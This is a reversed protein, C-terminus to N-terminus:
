RLEIPGLPPEAVAVVPREVHPHVGIRRQRRRRDHVVIGLGAQGGHQAVEAVLAVGTADSPGDDGGSRDGGGGLQGVDHSVGDRSRGPAGATVGGLPAELGDPDLDVFLERDESIGDIGGDVEEVGLAAERHEGVM